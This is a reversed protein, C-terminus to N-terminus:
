RPFRQQRPAPPTFGTKKVKVAGRKGLKHVVSPKQERFSRPDEQFPPAGPTGHGYLSSQRRPKAADVDDQSPLKLMRGQQRDFWLNGHGERQLHAFSQCPSVSKVQCDAVDGPKLDAFEKLDDHELVAGTVSHNLKFYAIGPKMSALMAKVKVGSRLSSESPLEKSNMNAYDLYQVSRRQILVGSPDGLEKNLTSQLPLLHAVNEVAKRVVPPPLPREHWKAPLLENRELRDWRHLRYASLSFTRMVEALSAQYIELGERELWAAFAVQLDYVSLIPLHYRNLLLSVAERCDHFVKVLGASMLVPKLPQVVDEGGTEVDILFMEDNTAIQVLALKGFRGIKEGGCDIGISHQDSDLIKQALMATQTATSLLRVPLRRVMEDEMGKDVRQPDPSSSASADSRVIWDQM